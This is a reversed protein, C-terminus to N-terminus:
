EREPPLWTLKARQFIGALTGDSAMASLIDEVTYGLDRADEKVAVGLTWSSRGFGPMPMPAIAFEGIRDGLAAEVQSRTAVVGGVRGALLEDVAARASAVHVVSERMRGLWADALFIAPLSDGEVAIKAHTFAAPSDSGEAAKPDRAFVFEQRMYPAFLVAQTNRAAFAPDYPVDMMVDAVGGGLYHGKWVANRLDDDVTEGAPIQMWRTAVGLRLAIARGIEVDVGEPEGERVFSLPPNDRYVGVRLYGSQIVEDLPRACAPLWPSSIAVSVLLPGLWPHRAAGM